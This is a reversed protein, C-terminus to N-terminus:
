DMRRRAVDDPDDPPYDAYLDDMMATDPEIPELSIEHNCQPCRAIALTEGHKPLLANTVPLWGMKSKCKDCILKDM